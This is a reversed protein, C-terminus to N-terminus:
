KFLKQFENTFFVVSFLDINYKNSIEKYFYDASQKKIENLQVLHEGKFNEIMNKIDQHFEFKACWTRVEEKTWNKLDIKDEQVQAPKEVPKSFNPQVTEVSYSTSPPIIPKLEILLRRM